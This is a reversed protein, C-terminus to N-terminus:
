ESRRSPDRTRWCANLDDMPLNTSHILELKRARTWGKIQKERTIADEPRNYEEFYVLLRVRYRKTFGRTLGERHENVRRELDSTVGIYLVGSKSSMIYVFYARNEREVRTM